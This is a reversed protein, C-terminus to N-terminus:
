QRRRDRRAARVHLVAAGAVLVAGIGQLGPSDDAGGLVFVAVGLAVVLLSVLWRV